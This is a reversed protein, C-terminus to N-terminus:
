HPDHTALIDAWASMASPFYGSFNRHKNWAMHTQGPAAFSDTREAVWGIVNGTSKETISFCNKLFRADYGLMEVMAQTSVGYQCVDKQVLAM